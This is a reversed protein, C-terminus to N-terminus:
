KGTLKASLKRYVELLKKEEISWNFQEFVAQRGIEGTRKAEEPNDLYFQVAAAVAKPDEPDVCMGFQHENVMQVWMPFNSCVVPIGASMYEFMKIALSDLHNPLPWSTIIGVRSRSLIEAVEKRGVYGHFIVNKWASKSTLEQKFSENDFSGALNLKVNDLYNLSEVVEGLGRVKTIGGIYCCERQKADWDPTHVLESLLPFNNIDETNPNVALFRDRIYPTATIVQDIRRAVRNEFREFVRSVTKRLYKNIWFKAMIQKPVNEHADYIVKKGKRKLRLAYRLLEPDHFHYIDADLSLAKEYVTKATHLMRSFRGGKPSEANVIRVGKVTAEATNAAVLYVDFGAEALSVCEKHFIRIDDAKHASTFHCVKIHANM